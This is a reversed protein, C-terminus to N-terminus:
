DDRGFLLDIKLNIGAVHEILTLLAILAVFIALADAVHDSGGDRERPSRARLYLAVGCLLLSAATNIKMTALGPIVGKLAPLDFIWGLLVSAGLAAAIVGAAAAGREMRRVLTPDVGSM